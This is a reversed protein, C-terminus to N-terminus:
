PAATGGRTGVGPDAASRWQQIARENAATMPQNEVRNKILMIQQASIDNVRPPLGEHMRLSVSAGYQQTSELFDVTEHLKVEVVRQAFERLLKFFSVSTEDRAALKLDEERDRAFEHSMIEIEPTIKM